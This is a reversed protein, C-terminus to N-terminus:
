KIYLRGEWYRGGLVAERGIGGGMELKLTISGGLISNPIGGGAPKGGTGLAATNPPLVTTFKSIVSCM